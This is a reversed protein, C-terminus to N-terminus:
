TFIYRVAINYIVEVCIDISKKYFLTKQTNKNIFKDKVWKSAIFVAAM